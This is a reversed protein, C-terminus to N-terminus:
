RVESSRELAKRALATLLPIDKSPINEKLMPLLVAQNPLNQVGMEGLPLAMHSAAGWVFMVIGGLLGAFFVRTPKNM